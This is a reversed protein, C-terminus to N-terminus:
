SKGKAPTKAGPCNPQAFAQYRLPPRGPGPKTAACNCLAEVGNPTMKAPHLIDGGGVVAAGTKPNAGIPKQLSM